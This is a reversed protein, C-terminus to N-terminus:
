PAECWGSTPTRRARDEVPALEDAERRGRRVMEVEARQRRAAAADDVRGVRVGLAQLEVRDLDLLLAALVLEDPLDQAVVAARRLQDDAVHLGLDRGALDAGRAEDLQDLAVAELGHLGRAFVEHVVGLPHQPALDLLERVAGVLRLAIEVAEDVMGVRRVLVQLDLDRDRDLAGLDRDVQGAGRRLDVQRDVHREDARDVDGIQTVSREIRSSQTSARDPAASSRAEEPAIEITAGSPQM